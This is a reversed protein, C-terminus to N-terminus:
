AKLKLWVRLKGNESRTAVSIGIMKASSHISGQLNGILISDGPNKLLRLLKVIKGRKPMPIGTEVKPINQINM